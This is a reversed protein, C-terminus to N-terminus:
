RHVFTVAYRDARVRRWEPAQDLVALLGKDETSILAWRINWRKQARTVEGADGDLMKKYRLVFPDGYLDTRGDIFVKIGRLILPGGFSYSNLV